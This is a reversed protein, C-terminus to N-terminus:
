SWLIRHYCTGNNLWQFISLVKKWKKCRNGSFKMWHSRSRNQCVPFFVKGTWMSQITQSKVETTYIMLSAKELSFFEIGHRVTGRNGAQASVQDPARIQLSVRNEKSDGMFHMRGWTKSGGCTRKHTAMKMFAQMNIKMNEFLVVNTIREIHIHRPVHWICHWFATEAM